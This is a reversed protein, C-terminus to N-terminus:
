ARTVSGVRANQSKHENNSSTVNSKNNSRRQNNAKVNNNVNIQTKSCARRKGNVSKFKSGNRKNATAGCANQKSKTRQQQVNITTRIQTTRIKRTTTQQVSTPNLEDIAARTRVRRVCEKLPRAM